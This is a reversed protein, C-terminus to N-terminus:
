ALWQDVRRRIREALERAARETAAEAVVRMVPETNSGRLLFWGDPMTVKVGDRVDLQHDAFERRAKRFVEGLRQSPFPFQIKVIEVPPLGAVLASVTEGSEALRHLVLGMGVLSDRAFNIRPYIVGGNGEGGIVARHRQMGATVNAEGVPTRFVACGHRAAVPELAHTTSLNAVVPGPTRRLVHDVALVLTREEGIPDGQESVISLRDADMDQAFGVDARHAKV